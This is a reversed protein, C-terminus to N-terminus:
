LSIGLLKAASGALVMEEQDKPLDIVRIADLMLEMYQGIEEFGSTNSNSADSGYLVREAGIRDVAQKIAYPNSFCTELYINENKEAKKTSLLESDFCTGGGMHLIVTKVKPYSDALEGIIYPHDRISHDSHIAVVADYKEAIEMMPYIYRAAAHQHCVKVGKWGFNSLYTETEELGEEEYRPDFTVFPILRKPFEEIAQHVYENDCRPSWCGFVVARDIKAADMRKILNSVPGAEQSLHCHFDIVVMKFIIRKM